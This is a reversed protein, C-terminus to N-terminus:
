GPIGSTVGHHLKNANAIDTETVGTLDSMELRAVAYQDFVPYGASNMYIDGYKAKIIPDNSPM